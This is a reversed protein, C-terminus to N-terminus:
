RGVSTERDASKSRGFLRDLARRAVSRHQPEPTAPAVLDDDGPRQAALFMSSQMPQMGRQEVAIREVVPLSEYYALQYSLEENRLSQANIERQLDSLELGLGAVASTQFLYLM